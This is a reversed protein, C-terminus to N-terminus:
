RACRNRRRQSVRLAAMRARAPLMGAHQMLDLRDPEPLCCLVEEGSVDWRREPRAVPLLGAHGLPEVEGAVVVHVIREASM